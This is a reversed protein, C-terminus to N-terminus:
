SFVFFAVLGHIGLVLGPLLVARLFAGSGAAYEIEGKDNVQPKGPLLDVLRVTEPNQPDYFLREAENDEAAETLHTKTTGRRVVGKDDTYEFTLAYVRRNNITTNTGQKDVLRGTTFKGRRLVSLTRLGMAYGGAILGFGIMPFLLVFLVAVGFPAKRTEKIRAVPPTQPVYEVPVQMGVDYKKGPTYCRDTIPMGPSIEYEFVYEYITTDNESSNTEHVATVQGTTNMLSGRFQYLSAVDSQGVFVWCFILTFGVVIWGILPLVGGFAVAVALSVPMSRLSASGAAPRVAYQDLNSM